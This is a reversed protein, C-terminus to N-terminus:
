FLHIKKVLQLVLVLQSEFLRDLGECVCNMFLYEM